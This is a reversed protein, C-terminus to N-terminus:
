RGSSGYRRSGRNTKPLTKRVSVKPTRVPKIVLQALREGRRVTINEQGLNQFRPNLPGTYNSDIPASCIRLAPYNIYTSSRPWIEGVTNIPLKISIGSPIDTPPLNVGPPIIIDKEVYLDYGADGPRNVRPVIYLFLPNKLCIQLSNSLCSRKKKPM